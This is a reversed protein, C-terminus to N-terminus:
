RPPLYIGQGDMLESLTKGPPVDRPDPFNGIALIHSRSGGMSRVCESLDPGSPCNVVERPFLFYQMLGINGYVPERDVPPVVVRADSPVQERLFRMYSAFDSGFAIEASRDVASLHRVEWIKEALPYIYGKLLLALQVLLALLLLVAPGDHRIRQYLM